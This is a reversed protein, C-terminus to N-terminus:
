GGTPQIVGRKKFASWGGVVVGLYMAWRVAWGKGRVKMAELFVKNAEAYSVNPMAEIRYLYDHIVAEYHARDGWLMFAIPIRPVSALDTCFGKPVVIWGVLDSLYVLEKALEWVKDARCIIDLEGVFKAM